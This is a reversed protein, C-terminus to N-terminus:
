SGYTRRTDKRDPMKEAKYQEILSAVTPVGINHQPKSELADRLPKAAKWAAAKTPLDRLSGIVKSHRRGDAWWFFNWAKIRKDLVVSGQKARARKV